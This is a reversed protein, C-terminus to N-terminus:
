KCRPRPRGDTQRRAGAAPRCVAPEKALQLARDNTSGIEHQYDVQEIFTEALIRDIDAPSFQLEAM